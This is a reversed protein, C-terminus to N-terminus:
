HWRTALSACPCAYIISRAFALRLRQRAPLKAQEEYRRRSAPWCSERVLHNITVYYDAGLELLLVKDAVETVASVVIIPTNPSAGKIRKVCVERGPVGPLM